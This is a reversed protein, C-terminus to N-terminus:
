CPEHNGCGNDTLQRYETGDAHVVCIEANGDIHAAFVLRTGDPSWVLQGGVVDVPLLDQGDAKMIYLRNVGSTRRSFAVLAGDPSGTPSFEIGPHQTLRIQETGDPAMRYIEWNGNRNSDFLITGEVPPDTCSGPASALYTLLVLAPVCFLRKM